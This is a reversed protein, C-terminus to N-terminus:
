RKLFEFRKKWDELTLREMDGHLVEGSIYKLLLYPVACNQCKTGGGFTCVGKTEWLKLCFKLEELCKERDM